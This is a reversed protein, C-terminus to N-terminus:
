ADYEASVLEVRLNATGDALEYSPVEFAMESRRPLRDLTQRLRFLSKGRADLGEVVLEIRRLAYGANFVTVGVNETALLRAGGWASGLRYHLDATQDCRQFGSPVAAPTPHAVRGVTQPSNDLPRGCKGCFHAVALNGAGCESCASDSM